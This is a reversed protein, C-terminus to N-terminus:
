LTLFLQKQSKFWFRFLSHHDLVIANWSFLQKQSQILIQVQVKQKSLQRCYVVMIAAVAPLLPHSPAQLPPLPLLQIQLLNHFPPIFSLCTTSSSFSFFSSSNCFICDKLAWNSTNRFLRSSLSLSLLTLLWWYHWPYRCHLNVTSSIFTQLLSNQHHKPNHSSVHCHLDFSWIRFIACIQHITM